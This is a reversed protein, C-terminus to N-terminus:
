QERGRAVVVRPPRCLHNRLSFYSIRTDNFCTTGYTPLNSLDMGQCCCPLTRAVVKPFSRPYELRLQGWPGHSQLPRSLKSVASSVSWLEIGLEDDVRSRTAGGWEDPRAGGRDHQDGALTQRAVWAAEIAAFLGRGRLPPIWGLLLGLYWFPIRLFLLWWILKGRLSDGKTLWRM